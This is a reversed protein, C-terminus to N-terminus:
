MVRFTVQYFFNELFIGAKDSSFYFLALSVLNM